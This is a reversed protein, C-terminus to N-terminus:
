ISDREVATKRPAIKSFSNDHGLVWNLIRMLMLYEFYEDSYAVAEDKLNRFNEIQQKIEQETRM